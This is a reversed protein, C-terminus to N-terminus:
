RMNRRGFLFLCPYVFSLSPLPSTPPLPYVRVCIVCFVCFFVLFHKASDTMTKYGNLIKRRLLRFVSEGGSEVRAEKREHTEPGGDGINVLFGVLQGLVFKQM